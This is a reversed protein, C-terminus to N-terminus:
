AGGAEVFRRRGWRSIGIGALVLVLALTTALSVREGLLLWGWFTGFLPVLYVSQAVFTYGVTAILHARIMFAIATPFVGLYVVAWVGAGAPALGWPRDVVLALPVIIVAGCIMVAATLAEIRMQRASRYIPIGSITYSVAALFVALQGRVGGVVGGLADGGVLVVLGGFGLLVGALKPGTLRDDTTFNHAMILALLPSAGMVIAASSSDIFREGWPILSFPVATNFVAIVAATRWRRRGAPAALSPLALGRLRMFGWVIAGAILVRGAAITVPPVTEVAVKMALFASGWIAGIVLLLVLPHSALRRM